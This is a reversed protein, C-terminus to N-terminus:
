ISEVSPSRCDSYIIRNRDTDFAIGFPDDLEFSRLMKPKKEEETPTDYQEGAASGGLAIIMIAAVLAASFYTHTHKM